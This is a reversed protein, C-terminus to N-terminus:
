SILVKRGDFNNNIVGFQQKAESLLQQGSYRTGNNTIEFHVPDYYTPFANGGWAFGMNNAIIIAGTAQWDSNLSAKVLTVGNKTLNLDIALGYGHTSTGPTANKSNQSQEYVQSAYSRYSDTINVIWGTQQQIANILNTFSQQVEPRLQNIHAQNAASLVNTAALLNDLDSPTDTKTYKKLSLSYVIWLEDLTHHVPQNAAWGQGVSWNPNVRLINLHISQYFPLSVWEPSLADIYNIFNDKTINAIDLSFVNLRKTKIINLATFDQNRSGFTKNNTEGQMSDGVGYGTWTSYLFQYRGSAPNGQPFGLKTTPTWGAITSGGNIIDYGNNVGRGLTGEAYALTDLLAKENNTLGPTVISGLGNSILATKIDVVDNKTIGRGNQVTSNVQSSSLGIATGNNLNAIVSYDTVYPKPYKPIRVGRFTTKFNNPVIHHDVDTILYAGKFMAINRLDFYMTPQIMVNGLGHVACTYSRQEYVNFLNNGKVTTVSDTGQQSKSINDIIQISENTEKFEAQDLDVNTFFSQNQTGFDVAFANVNSLDSINGVSDSDDQHSLDPNNNIGLQASTGGVYMCIFKPAQSVNNIINTTGFIKTLNSQSWLLGAGKFDIYSPLLFFEFNNKALLNMLLTYISTDVTTQTDYLPTLDLIVQSGINNYGRDVMLFNTDINAPNLLDGINFTVDGLMWRDVFEKITYYLQTKIDDTRLKSQVESQQKKADNSLNSNAKLLATRLSKFYFNIDNILPNPLTQFNIQKSAFDSDFTITDGMLIYRIDISQIFFTSNYYNTTNFSGNANNFNPQYRSYFNVYETYVAMLTTKIYDPLTLYYKSAPNTITCNYGWWALIYFPVEYIASIQKFRDVDFPDLVNSSCISILWADVPISPSVSTSPVPVNKIYDSNFVASPNTIKKNIYDDCKNDKFLTVNYQCLVPKDGYNDIIGSLNSIATSFNDNSYTSNNTSQAPIGGIETFNDKNYILFQSSGSYTISPTAGNIATVGQSIQINFPANATTTFDFSPQNIITIFAGLNTTNNQLVSIINNVEGSVFTNIYDDTPTGQTSERMLVYGRRVITDILSNNGSMSNIVNNYPNNNTTLTNTASVIKSDFVNIPIYKYDNIDSNTFNNTINEISLVDARLKTDIYNNVFIVEDWTPDQPISKVKKGSSNIIFYEPFAYKSSDGHSTDNTNQRKTQASNIVKSLKTYFTYADNLLILLVQKLTAGGPLFKQIFSKTTAQANTNKADVSKNLNIIATNIKSDIGTLSLNKISTYNQGTTQTIDKFDPLLPINIGAVGSSKMFDSEGQITNQLTNYISISNTDANKIAISSFSINLTNSSINSLKIEKYQGTNQGAINNILNTLYIIYSPQRLSLSQINETNNQIFTKDKATVTKLISTLQSSISRLELSTTIHTGTTNPNNGDLYPAVYCYDLLIDSLPAFKMGVFTQRIEFSGNSTLNSTSKILHLRYTIPQGYYGKLTLDFIPPPFDFLIKYPSSTNNNFLSQGRVDEYLVEVQPVYSPTIKVDISKIGFNQNNTTWDTTFLGTTPNNGLLNIVVSGQNVGNLRNRKTVKLSAYFTLKSLDVNQNNDLAKHPDLIDAM